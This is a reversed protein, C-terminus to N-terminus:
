FYEFSFQDTKIKIKAVTKRIGMRLFHYRYVYPTDYVMGKSPYTCISLPAIYISIKTTRAAVRQWASGCV